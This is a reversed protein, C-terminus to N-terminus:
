PSMAPMHTSGAGYFCPDKPAGADEKQNSMYKQVCDQWGQIRSALKHEHWQRGTVTAGVANGARDLSPQFGAARCTLCVANM